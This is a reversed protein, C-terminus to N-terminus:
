RNQNQPNQPNIQFPITKTKSESLKSSPDKTFSIPKLKLIQYTSTDLKSELNNVMENEMVATEMRKETNSVTVQVDKSDMHAVTQVRLIGRLYYGWIVM